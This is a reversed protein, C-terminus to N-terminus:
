GQPRAREQLWADPYTVQGTLAFGAIAERLVQRRREVDPEDQQVSERLVALWELFDPLRDDFIAELDQKVRRALAPAAGSTSIAVRLHGKQVLAPLMCNSAEPQDVSCVLFREKNALDLISRSLEPDHRLTNIVLVIGQVDTERLWRPRHIIKASAALKRLTDNLTPSVVMVRAGGELLRTVKEAAEEDGGIVVCTRGKVDLSVQFGPNVAM